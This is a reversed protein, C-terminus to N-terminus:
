LPQVEVVQVGKYRALYRGLSEHAARESTSWQLVEEEAADGQLDGYQATVCADVYSEPTPHKALLAQAEKFDHLTVIFQRGRSAPMWEGGVGVEVKRAAGEWGKRFLPRAEADVRAREGALNRRGIVAHTYERDSTRKSVRGDAHAYVYTRRAM